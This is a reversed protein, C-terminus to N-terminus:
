RVMWAQSPLGASKWGKVWDLAGPMRRVAKVQPGSM